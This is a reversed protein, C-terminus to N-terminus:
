KLGPMSKKIKIFIYENKALKADLNYRQRIDQLIYQYKIYMYEPNEM